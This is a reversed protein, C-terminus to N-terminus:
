MCCARQSYLGNNISNRGPVLNGEVTTMFIDWVM